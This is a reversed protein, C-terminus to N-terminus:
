KKSEGNYITNSNTSKKKFEIVAEENKNVHSKRAVKLKAGFKRKVYKNVTHYNIDKIFNESIYAQLEKYGILGNKPDNLKKEIDDHTEKNIISKKFGIRNFKLLAEIGHLVYLKRWSQATFHSIGVAEAIQYKTLVKKSKKCVQLFRVRDKLHQPQQKMLSSLESLNEKVIFYLPKAM